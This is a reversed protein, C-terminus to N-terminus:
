CGVAVSLQLFKIREDTFCLIAQLSLESHVADGSISDRQRADYGVLLLSGSKSM